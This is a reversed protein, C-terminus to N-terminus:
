AIGAETKAVKVVTGNALAYVARSSGSDIYRVVDKNVKIFYYMDDNFTAMVDKFSGKTTKKADNYASSAISVLQKFASTDVNDVEDLKQISNVPKFSIDRRHSMVDFLVKRPVLYMFINVVFKQM